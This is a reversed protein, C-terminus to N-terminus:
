SHFERDIQEFGSDSDRCKTQKSVGHMRSLTGWLQQHFYRIFMFFFMHLCWNDAEIRLGYNLTQLLRWVFPAYVLYQVCSGGDRM